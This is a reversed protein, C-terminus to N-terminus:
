VERVEQQPADQGSPLQKASASRCEQGSSRWTTAETVSQQQSASLQKLYYSKRDEKELRLNMLVPWHLTLWDLIPWAWVGIAGQVALHAFSVDYAMREHSEFPAPFAPITAFGAAFGEAKSGSGWIVSELVTSLGKIFHYHHADFAEALRRDCPDFAYRPVRNGAPQFPGSCKGTLEVVELRSSVFEYLKLRVLDPREQHM